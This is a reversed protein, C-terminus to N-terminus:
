EMRVKSIRKSAFIRIIYEKLTNISSELDTDIEKLEASEFLQKNSLVLYKLYEDTLSYHKQSCKKCIFIPMVPVERIRDPSVLDLERYLGLNGCKTCLARM